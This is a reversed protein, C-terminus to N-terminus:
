DAADDNGRDEDIADPREAVPLLTVRDSSFRRFIGGVPLKPLSMGFCKLLFVILANFVRASAASADILRAPMASAWSLSRNATTGFAIFLGNKSRVRSPQMASASFSPLTSHM